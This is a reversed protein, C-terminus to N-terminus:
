VAIGSEAANLAAAREAIAAVPVAGCDRWRHGDDSGLTADPCYGLSGAILHLAGPRDGSAWQHDARVCVYGVLESM